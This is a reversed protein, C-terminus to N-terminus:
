NNTTISEPATTEKQAVANAEAPEDTDAEKQEPIPLYEEPLTTTLKRVPYNIEIGEDNLRSHLRMIIEHQMAFMAVRDVAQFIIRFNINSDAFEFFRVIPEFEKNADESEENVQGAVELCVREVERLDSAYSVGCEVIGTVAPTPTTYNTLISETILNNPVVVLNNFRSRLVTSRWGVSEVFGARESDIEIYDGESVHGEAVVYTGAIFSSITPSLALAVALGGIGLGALLPTIPIGMIDLAILGGLTFIVISSIRILVPWIITNLADRTDHSARSSYWRMLAVVSRSVAYCVIAAILVLWIKEGLAAFNSIFRLPLAPSNSFANLGLRVGYLIVALMIPLRMAGILRIEMSRLPDDYRRVLINLVQGIVFNVLFAGAVFAVLIGLAFTAALFPNHVFAEPLM